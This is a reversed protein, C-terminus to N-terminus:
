VEYQIAHRGNEALRPKIVESVFQMHAPHSAYVKYDDASMFKAVISFKGGQVGTIGLDFGCEFSSIVSIKSAMHRAAKVLESADSDKVAERLTMIVVHNVVM